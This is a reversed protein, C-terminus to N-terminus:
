TSEGGERGRREHGDWTGLREAILGREYSEHWEAVVKDLYTNGKMAKYDDYDSRIAEAKHPAHRINNLITERLVKCEVAEIGLVVRLYAFLRRRAAFLAAALALTSTAGLDGVLDLIAKLETM